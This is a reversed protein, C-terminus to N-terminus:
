CSKCHEFYPTTQLQKTPPLTCSNLLVWQMQAPPYLRCTPICDAPPYVTQLHTYLRCTPITQLHTYLRCTPITQLHTYLRCTPITQLHTYLRCTPICDAPPYVTQRCKAQSVTNSFAPLRGGFDEPLIEPPINEHLKELNDGYLHIQFLTASRVSAHVCVHAHVSVCLCMWACLVINMRLLFNMSVGVCMYICMCVCIRLCVLVHMCAHAHVFLNHM